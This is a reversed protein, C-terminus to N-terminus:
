HVVLLAQGLFAGALLGVILTGVFFLRDWNLNLLLSLGRYGQHIHEM